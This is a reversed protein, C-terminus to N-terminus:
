RAGRPGTRNKTNSARKTKWLSWGLADKRVETRERQTPRAWEGANRERKRGGDLGTKAHLESSCYGVGKSGGEVEWHLHIKTAWDLCGM